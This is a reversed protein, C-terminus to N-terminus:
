SRNANFSRRAQFKLKRNNDRLYSGTFILSYGIFSILLNVIKCAWPSIQLLWIAAKENTFM